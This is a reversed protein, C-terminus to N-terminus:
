RTCAGRGQFPNVCLDTCLGLFFWGHYIAQSNDAPDPFLLARPKLFSLSRFDETRAEQKDYVDPNQLKYTGLGATYRHQVHM